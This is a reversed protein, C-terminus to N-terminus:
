ETKLQEIISKAVEINLTKEKKLRLTVEELIDPSAGASLAINKAHLAMHGKQIGDTTLAYLAAFNQALGVSAVISMLEKVNQYQTISQFLQAKPHISIIGGVSGLALPLTIKGHLLDDKINWTALPQSNAQLSAYTYLAANVARTDNGSALVVADIGNMIGKNHTACRYIDQQALLSSQAILHMTESGGRLMKPHITCKATVLSETTLNSLITMLASVQYSENIHHAISELVTNMMNAGMAEQTDMFVDMIIFDKLERLEFHSVGGGRKIISPYAEDAIQKLIDFKDKIIQIMQISDETKNFIIEGRKLTGHITTVFGDNSRIIKAANSAAAIVSSEETAMPVHYTKGDILFGPALGLPVEFVSIANEIMHDAGDTTLNELLNLDFSTEQNLIQIREAVSKKYFGSFQNM